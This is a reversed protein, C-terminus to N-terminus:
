TNAEDPTHPHPNMWNSQCHAPLVLCVVGCSGDSIREFTARKHNTCLTVHCRKFWHHSCLWSVCLCLERYYFSWFPKLKPLFDHEWARGCQAYSSASYSTKLAKVTIFYIFYFKSLLSFVKSFCKTRGGKREQKPIDNTFPMWKSYKIKWDCVQM